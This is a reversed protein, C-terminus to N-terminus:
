SRSGAATSPPPPPSRPTRRATLAVHVDRRVLEAFEAHFYSAIAEPLEPMTNMGQLDLVM